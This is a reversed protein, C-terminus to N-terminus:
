VTRKENYDSSKLYGTKNRLFIDNRHNLNWITSVESSVKIQNSPTVGIKRNGFQINIDGYFAAEDFYNKNLSSHIYTIGYFQNKYAKINNTLNNEIISESNESSFTTGIKNKSNLEYYLGVDFSTNIFTSDKKYINFSLKQSIPSKFLYPTSITTEFAATERGIKNWFLYIQGGRNFTNILDLKLYGNIFSKEGEESNINILGDFSSKQKKKLFMYLLTSDKKFLIEPPKIEEVFTLSTTKTSIEKMKEKNLITNNKIRYFYRLYPKPFADYGKIIINNLKRKKNKKIFVEAFLTDKRIIINKLTTKAFSFGKSELERNISELFSPLATYSIHTKEKIGSWKKLSPDKIAQFTLTATKIKNNLTIYSFILTDKSIISDNTHTLYGLRNLTVSISNIEKIVAASDKHTKEYTLGKIISAEEKITAKM